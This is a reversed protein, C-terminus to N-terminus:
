FEAEIVEKSARTGLAGWLGYPSKSGPAQPGTGGYWVTGSGPNGAEISDTIFQVAGDALLVHAGGQHRSSPPVTGFGWADGGMCVEANPPLITNIVTYPFHGDAWRFGRGQNAALLSTVSPAWFQPRAPDIEARCSTPHNLLTLASPWFGYPHTAIARDGL